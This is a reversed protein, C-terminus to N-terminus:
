FIELFPCIKGWSKSYSNRMPPISWPTQTQTVWEFELCNSREIKCESVPMGLSSIDNRAVHCRNMAFFTGQTVDASSECTHLYVTAHTLGRGRLYAWECIGQHLRTSHTCERVNGVCMHFRICGARREVMRSILLDDAFPHAPTTAMKAGIIDRPPWPLEYVIVKPMSDSESNRRRSFASHAFM